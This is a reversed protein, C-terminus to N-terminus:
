VPEEGIVPSGTETEQIPPFSDVHITQTPFAFEIAESEFYRHLALNIQQITDMYAAYEPVLMYFVVEFTIASDGFEKLHARDFRTKEQAEVIEQIKKPISELKGYPTDYTVGVSFHARRENLSKYNRIRSSLLDSNGFVIQEGSLSRVRTSKIGIHEVNGSYEGIVM